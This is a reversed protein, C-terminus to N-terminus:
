HTIVVQESDERFHKLVENSPPPPARVVKRFNKFRSALGEELEDRELDQYGGNDEM